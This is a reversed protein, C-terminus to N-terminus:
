YSFTALRAFTPEVEFYDLWSDPSALGLRERARMEVPKLATEAVREDPGLGIARRYAPDLESIMATLDSYFQATREPTKVMRTRARCEAYSKCGLLEAM